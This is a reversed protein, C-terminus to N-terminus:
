EFGVREYSARAKVNFDDVYLSVVPAIRRALQVVAAMYGVSLGQGRFEPRLWVGQVQTAARSVLGLDAKFVVEGASDLHSLSHGQAILAAVRRRYFEEGGSYPSYGVEEEFMAVAAPLIQDFDANSSQRLSRHPEVLPESAITMLPQNARIEKAESGCRQMEAFIGLVGDAPGYISAHRRGTATLRQAFIPATQATVAVPIINAGVWCAALLVEHADFLGLIETGIVSSTATRHQELHAALYINAIPDLGVLRQLEPTDRHTLARIPGRGGRAPDPSASWPAAKSAAKAM